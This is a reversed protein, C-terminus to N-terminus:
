LVKGIKQDACPVAMFLFINFCAANAIAILATLPRAKAWAVLGAASLRVLLMFSLESLLALIMESSVWAGARLAADFSLEASLWARAPAPSLLLVLPSIIRSCVSGCLPALRAFGGIPAPAGLVSVAPSM